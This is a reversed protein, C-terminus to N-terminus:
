FSTKTSASRAAGSRAVLACRSRRDIRRFRDEVGEERAGFLRRM